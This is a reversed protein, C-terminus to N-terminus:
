ERPTGHVTDLDLRRSPAWGRSGQRTERRGELWGCALGEWCAEGEGRAAPMCGLAGQCGRPRRPRRGLSRRARFKRRGTPGRPSPPRRERAPRPRRRRRCRRGRWRFYRLGKGSAARSGSGVGWPGGRGPMAEQCRPPHHPLGDQWPPLHRGSPEIRQIPSPTDTDARSRPRSNCGAGPLWRMSRAQCAYHTSGHM